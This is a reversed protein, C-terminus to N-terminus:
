GSVPFVGWPCHIGRRYGKYLFGYWGAKAVRKTAMRKQLLHVRVESECGRDSFAAAM